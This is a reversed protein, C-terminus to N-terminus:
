FNWDAHRDERRVYSPATKLIAEFRKGHDRDGLLFRPLAMPPDRPTAPRREISFAAAYGAEEARRMLWSDYIGFPWALLDVTGGLEKELKLRSRVLQHRVLNEFEERSLRARETNFNPHWYTHSQIDCLGSAKLERLQEWTMAYAANSIASPYIFLTMPVGYKRLLPFAETYVSRHGDDAALVVARGDLPPGHGHFRAVLDKLGIVKFGNAQLFDLHSEFVATRVTMSDAAVPGLRHYLLIPVGPGSGPGAGASVPWGGVAVWLMLASLFRM